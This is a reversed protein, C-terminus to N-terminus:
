KKKLKKYIKDANIKKDEKSSFLNGLKFKISNRIDLDWQIGSLAKKYFRLKRREIRKTSKLEKAKSKISIMLEKQASIKNITESQQEKLELEDSLIIGNIEAYLDKTLITLDKKM